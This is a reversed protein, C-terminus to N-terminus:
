EAPPAITVPGIESVCAKIKGLAESPTPPNAVMDQLSHDAMVKDAACSCVKDLDVNLGEPVQGEATAACSSIISQRVTSKLNADLAGGEGCGALALPLALLAFPATLALTRRM